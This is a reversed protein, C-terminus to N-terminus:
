RDFKAKVRTIEDNIGALVAQREAIQKNIEEKAKQGAEDAEKAAESSAQARAQWEAVEQIARDKDAAISAIEKDVDARYTAVEKRFSARAAEVSGIERELVAKTEELQAIEGRAKGVYALLAGLRRFARYEMEIQRVTALAQDLNIEEDM